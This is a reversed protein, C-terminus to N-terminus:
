SKKRPPSLFRAILVQLMGLSADIDADPNRIVLTRMGDMVSMLMGAAVAADLGPDIQGRAQGSEVFDKLLGLLFASNKRLIKAIAPNRGAEVLMELMMRNMARHNADRKKDKHRGVEALLAGVADEDQMMQAFRAAIKEMGTAALETLIAEKSAFYHYLHGASIGAEACIDATSAGRFGDHGICRAAAALIEQRKEDHKVPDLTRM